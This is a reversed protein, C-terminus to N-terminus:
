LKLIDLLCDKFETMIGPVGNSSFSSINHIADRGLYSQVLWMRSSSFEFEVGDAYQQM